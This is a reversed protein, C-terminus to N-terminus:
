AAAWCYAARRAQRSRTAKYIWLGARGENRSRVAFLIRMMVAHAGPGCDFGAAVMPGQFTVWRHAKWLYVCLATLDSFGILIRPPLKKRAALADVLYTSGYGGRVSIIAGAVPDALAALFEQTRRKTEGAFYADEKTAIRPANALLRAAAIGCGREIVDARAPSAPLVVRIKAGPKLAPPKRVTPM